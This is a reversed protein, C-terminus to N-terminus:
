DVSKHENKGLTSPSEPVDYEEMLDELEFEDADDVHNRTKQRQEELSLIEGDKFSKIRDSNVAFIHLLINTFLFALFALSYIILVYSVHSIGYDSMLQMQEETAGMFLFGSAYLLFPPIYQFSNADGDESKTNQDQLIFAVEIIRTLGAAMLTYGFVSHIMTSLPLHQPHGSMAWGTLFIVFGPVFNRKPTGDRKKSLWIGLLGACWWIVGMATHQIDNAVWAQGWRHETFTNVCGWAAIMLSDFFEPSKGLKQLWLQGVLMITTMLAGYGIFASGMIFHALCQGLHDERCYGMATIGGLLIQAWAIVPMLKGGLGHGFVVIKRFKSHLGNYIHLRLYIGFIIQIVLIAMLWNGFAGHINETFIRGQHLHALFYAPVAVATGIIQTPVHWRSKALGLVMGTPFIIGFSIMMLIIHLKLMSDIPDVTMSEGAVIKTLDHGHAVVLRASVLFSAILILKTFRAM